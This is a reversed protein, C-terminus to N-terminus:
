KFMNIRYFNSEMRKFGLAQYLKNAEARQPNTRLNLHRSKKQYALKIGAEMLLRGVGWKRYPADVVLDELWATLGTPIRVFYVSLVGLIKEQNGDIKGLAAIFSLYKQNLMERFAAMTMAKPPIKTLSIQSILKNIRALEKEEAKKIIKIKVM